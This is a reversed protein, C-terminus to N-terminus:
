GHNACVDCVCEVNHTVYRGDRSTARDAAPDTSAFEEAWESEFPGPGHTDVCVNEFGPRFHERAQLELDTLTLWDAHIQEAVEAPTIMDGRTLQMRDLRGAIALLDNRRNELKHRGTQLEDLLRKIRNHDWRNCGQPQREAWLTMDRYKICLEMIKTRIAFYMSIMQVSNPIEGDMNYGTREKTLDSMFRKFMKDWAVHLERWAERIRIFPDEPKREKWPVPGGAGPIAEQHLILSCWASMSRMHEFVAHELPYFRDFGNERFGEEFDFNFDNLQEIFEKNKEIINQSDQDSGQLLDVSPSDDFTDEM